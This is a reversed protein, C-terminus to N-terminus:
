LHSIPSGGGADPCECKGPTTGGIELCIEDTNTATPCKPGGDLQIGNDCTIICPKSPDFPGLGAIVSKLDKKNLIKKPELKLDSLKKM